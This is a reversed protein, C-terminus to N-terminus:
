ASVAPRCDTQHRWRELGRERDSASAALRSSLKPIKEESALLHKIGKTLLM